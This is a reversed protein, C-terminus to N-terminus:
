IDGAIMDFATYKFTHFGDVSLIEDLKDLQKDTLLESLCSFIVDLYEKDYSNYMSVLAKFEQIVKFM